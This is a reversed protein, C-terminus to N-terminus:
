KHREKEILDINEGSYFDDHELHENEHEATDKQTEHSMRSNIVVTFYEGDPEVTEKMFGRITCPMDILVTNM